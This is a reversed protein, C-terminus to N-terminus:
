NLRGFIFRASAVCDGRTRRTTRARTSMSHRRERSFSFDVSTDCERGRREGRYPAIEGGEREKEKEVRSKNHIERGNNARILARTRPSELIRGFPACAHARSPFNIFFVGRQDVALANLSRLRIDIHM